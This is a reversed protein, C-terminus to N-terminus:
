DLAGGHIVAERAVERGDSGPREDDNIVPERVISTATM